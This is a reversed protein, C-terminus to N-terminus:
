GALFAGPKALNLVSVTAESIILSHRSGLVLLIYLIYPPYGTHVTDGNGADASIDVPLQSPSLKGV